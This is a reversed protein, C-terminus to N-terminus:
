QAKPPVKTGNQYAKSVSRPTAEPGGNAKWATYIANMQPGTPTGMGRQNMEDILKEVFDAWSTGVPQSEALMAALALVQRTRKDGIIGLHSGIWYALSGVIAIGTPTNAFHWLWTLVSMM